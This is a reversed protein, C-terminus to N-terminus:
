KSKYKWFFLASGALACISYVYNFFLVYNRKINFKQLSNYAYIHFYAFQCTKLLFITPICTLFVSHSYFSIYWDYSHHINLFILIGVCLRQRRGCVHNKIFECFWYTGETFADPRRRRSTLLAHVNVSAYYFFFVWAAIYLKTM